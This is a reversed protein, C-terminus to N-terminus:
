KQPPIEYSKEGWRLIVEQSAPALPIFFAHDDKKLNIDVSVNKQPKIMVMEILKRNSTVLKGRIASLTNNRLIVSVEKTNREPAVIKVKKDFIDVVFTDAREKGYLSFTYLFLIIFIILKM